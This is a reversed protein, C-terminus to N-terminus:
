QGNAKHSIQNVGNTTQTSHSDRSDICMKQVPSPKGLKRADSGGCRAAGSSNHSTTHVSLKPEVGGGSSLGFIEAIQICRQRGHRNKDNM